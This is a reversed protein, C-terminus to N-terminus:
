LTASSMLIFCIRTVSRGCSTWSVLMTAGEGLSLGGGEYSVETIAAYMLVPATRIVPLACLLRRTGTAFSMDHWHYHRLNLAKPKVVRGKVLLSAWCSGKM